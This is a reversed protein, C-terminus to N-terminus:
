RAPRRSKASPFSRHSQNSASFSTKAFKLSYTLGLSLKTLKSSQYFSRAFLWISSPTLCGFSRLLCGGAELECPSPPGYAWRKKPRSFLRLMDAQKQGGTQRASVRKRLGRNGISNVCTKKRREPLSRRYRSELSPLSQFRGHM